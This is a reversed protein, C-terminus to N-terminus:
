LKLTGGRFFHYPHKKREFNEFVGGKEPDFNEPVGGSFFFVNLVHIYAYLAYKNKIGRCECQFKQLGGKNLLKKRLGGEKKPRFKKFFVM